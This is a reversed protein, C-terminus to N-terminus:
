APLERLVRVGCLHDLSLVLARPVHCSPSGAGRSCSLLGLSPPFFRSHPTLSTFVLSQCFHWGCCLACSLTLIAVPGLRSGRWPLWAVALLSFFVHVFSGSHLDLPPRFAPRAPRLPFGSVPPSQSLLSGPPCVPADPFHPPTWNERSVLLCTM